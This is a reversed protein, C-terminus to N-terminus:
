KHNYITRCATQLLDAAVFTEPAGRRWASFPIASFITASGCHRGLAAM